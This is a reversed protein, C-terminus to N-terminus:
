TRKVPTGATSVGANGKVMPTSTHVAVTEFFYRVAITLVTAPGNAITAEHSRALLIERRQRGFLNIYNHNGDHYFQM